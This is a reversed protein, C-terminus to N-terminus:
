NLDWLPQSFYSSFNKYTIFACNQSMFDRFIHFLDEELFKVGNSELYECLNRWSLDIDVGNSISSFLEETRYDRLQDVLNTTDEIKRLLLIIIQRMIHFESEQIILEEKPEKFSKDKKKEQKAEYENNLFSSDLNLPYFLTSFQSFSVAVPKNSRKNSAQLYVMIKQLQIDPVQFGIDMIMDIFEEQALIGTKKDDYLEFIGILNFNPNNDFIMNKLEEIKAGYILIKKFLHTLRNNMDNNATKNSLMGTLNLIELNNRSRNTTIQKNTPTNKLNRLEHESFQNNKITSAIMDDSIMHKRDSKLFFIPDIRESELILGEKQHERNNQCNLNLIDLLKQDDHKDSKYMIENNKVVKYSEKRQFSNQIISYDQIEFDKKGSTEPAQSKNALGNYVIFAKISRRNKRAPEYNLLNHSKNINIEASKDLDALINDTPINDEKRDFMFDKIISRNMDFNSPRDNPLCSKSLAKMRDSGFRFLNSKTDELKTYDKLVQLEKTNRQKASNYNDLDVINTVISNIISLLVGKVNLKHTYPVERYGKYNGYMLTVKNIIRGIPSISENNNHMNDTIVSVSLDNDSATINSTMQSESNDHHRSVHVGRRDEVGKNTTTKRIPSKSVSRNRLDENVKSVTRRQSDALQSKRAEAVHRKSKLVKVSSSNNDKRIPLHNSAETEKKIVKQTKTIKQTTTGKKINQKETRDGKNAEKADVKYQKQILIASRDKLQSMQINPTAITSRRVNNIKVDFSKNTGSKTLKKVGPTVSRDQKVPTKVVSKSTISKRASTNSARPEKMLKTGENLIVSKRATTVLVSKRVPIPNTKSEPTVQSSSVLVSRRSKLKSRSDSQKPVVIPIKNKDEIKSIRPKAGFEPTKDRSAIRKIKKVPPKNDETKLISSERKSPPSNSLDVFSHRSEKDGNTKNLSMRKGMKSDSSRNSKPNLKLKKSSLENINFLRIGDKISDQNGIKRGSPVRMTSDEDQLQNTLMSATDRTIEKFDPKSENFKITSRRATMMDSDGVSCSNIDFPIGNITIPTLGISKIEKSHDQLQLESNNNLIVALMNPDNFYNKYLINKHTNDRALISTKEYEIFSLINTAKVGRRHLRISLMDIDKESLNQKNKIKMFFNLKDRFSEGKIFMEEVEKDSINALVDGYASYLYSALQVEGMILSLVQKEKDSPLLKADDQSYTTNLM